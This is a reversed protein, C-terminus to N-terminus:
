TALGTASPDGRRLVARVTKPSIAGGGRGTMGAKVLSAAIQRLSWGKAHLARMRKVARQEAPVPALSGATTLRFGFPAFRSIRQGRQRKVRMAARTRERTLNREMEAAGALVTLMFKGAASATDIANGGLDIVHLTVRRKEWAEVTALCDAAHRFGRDLKLMVVNAAERGLVARCLDAGGPRRALPGGGSVGCDEVVQVMALGRLTCYAEIQARQDALGLGTATQEETSVRVYGIATRM